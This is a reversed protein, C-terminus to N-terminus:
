KILRAARLALVIAPILIFQLIIGPIANVFGETLFLAWTFAAGGVGSIVARVCGWVVRGLLMATVLSVWINVAKKPLLKYIAGSVLGYVALEFCMAIGTPYIPPMGFVAFRLIPAFAGIVMGYWPGCIFGCLLVPIHMPCLMGGIQPVQGTLFPLVMCLALCLAGLVLNQINNKIRDTSKIKSM